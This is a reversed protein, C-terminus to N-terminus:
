HQQSSPYHFVYRSIALQAWALQASVHACHAPCHYRASSHLRWVSGASRRGVEEVGDIHAWGVVDEQAVVDVVSHAALLVDPEFRVQAVNVPALCGPDSDIEMVGPLADLVSRSM